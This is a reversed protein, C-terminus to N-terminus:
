LPDGNIDRNLYTHLIRRASELRVTEKKTLRLTDIKLPAILNAVRVIVSEARKLDKKKGM